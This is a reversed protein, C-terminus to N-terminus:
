TLFFVIFFLFILHGDIGLSFFLDPKLSSSKIILVGAVLCSVLYGILAPIEVLSGFCFASLCLFVLAIIKSNKTGVWQPITKKREEDIGIDRIDFPITIALIYCFVWGFSTLFVFTPQNELVIAPIIGSAIAWSTSILLIKVYPLDRLKGYSYGVSIVALIVLWILSFPAEFIPVFVIAGIFSLFLLVKAITSNEVVWSNPSYKAITKLRSVRQFNYSFLTCFFVFLVYDINPAFGIVKFSLLTLLSAGLSIWINSYVLFKLLKM